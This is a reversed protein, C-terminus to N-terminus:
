EVVISLAFAVSFFYTFSDFAGASLLFAASFSFRLTFM